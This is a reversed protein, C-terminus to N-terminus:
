VSLEEPHNPKMFIKAFYRINSFRISHLFWQVKEERKPETLGNVFFSFEHFDADVASVVSAKKGNISKHFSECFLM